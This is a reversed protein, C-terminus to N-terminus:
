DKQLLEKLMSINADSLASMARNKVDLQGSILARNEWLKDFKQKLLSLSVGDEITASIIYDDLGLMRMYRGVKSVYNIGIVPVNQSSGLVISHYPVGVLARCKSIIAVTEEPKYSRRLVRVKQKNSILLEIEEALKNDGSSFLRRPTIANETDVSGGTCYFPVFLINVGYKEIVYDCFQALSRKFEGFRKKYLGPMLGLRARLGSPIFYFISKEHHFIKRAAIAVTENKDLDIGEEKIAARLQEFDASPCDVAMDATVTAAVEGKTWRELLERSEADRVTVMDFRKLAFVGLMKGIFTIEEESAVGIANCAVKKGMFKAILGMSLNIPVVGVFYNDQLITGGGLIVLDTKRLIRCLEVPNFLQRISHACVGYRNRVYEPDDSFMHITARPIQAKIKLVTNLIIALDGTNSVKSEWIKNKWLLINYTGASDQM